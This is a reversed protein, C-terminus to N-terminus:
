RRHGWVHCTILERDPPLAAAMSLASYGSYTGIELVRRAGSAWVLMQLFAGEVPGTLM